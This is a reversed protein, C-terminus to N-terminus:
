DMLKDLYYYILWEYESEQEMRGKSANFNRIAEILDKETENLPKM